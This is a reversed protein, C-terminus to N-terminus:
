LDFIEACFQAKVIPVSFHCVLVSFCHCPRQSLRTRQSHQPQMLFLFPSPPLCAPLSPPLPFFPTLLHYASVCSCCISLSPGNYIYIYIYLLPPGAALSPCFAFPFSSAPLSSPLLIFHMSCLFAVIACWLSLSPTQSLTLSHSQSHALRM